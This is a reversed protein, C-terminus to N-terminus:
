SNINIEMIIAYYISNYDDNMNDKINMGYYLCMCAHVCEGMCVCAHVCEGMCVCAHVCECAHICACM